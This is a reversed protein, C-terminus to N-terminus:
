DRGIKILDMVNGASKVEFETEIWASASAAQAPTITGPTTSLQYVGAGLDAIIYTGDAVGASKVLQGVVIAGSTTSVVTMEDTAFTATGVWGGYAEPLATAYTKGTQATLAPKSLFVTGASGNYTGISEVYTGIDLGPGTVLQGVKLSGSATASITMTYSDAVLSATVSAVSGVANTPFAGAAAALAQGSLLNAFVKNGIAAESCTSQAWFDGRIHETLMTGAPVLLSSDDMLSPITAQQQNCVFGDPVRPTPAFNQGQGPGGAVPYVNWAFRGVYVGASGAVLGGPGAPVTALPNMSAIAGVVGPAPYRHVQSQFSM